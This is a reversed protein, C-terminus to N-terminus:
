LWWSGTLPKNMLEEHEDRQMMRLVTLFGIREPHHSPNESLRNMEQELQSLRKKLECWLVRYDPGREM